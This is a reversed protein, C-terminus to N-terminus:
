MRPFRRHLARIGDVSFVDLCHEPRNRTENENASRLLIAAQLLLLRHVPTGHRNEDV